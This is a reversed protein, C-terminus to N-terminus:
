GKEQQEHQWWGCSVASTSAAVAARVSVVLGHCLHPPVASVRPRKVDNSHEATSRETFHLKDLVLRRSFQKCQLFEALAFHDLLLSM